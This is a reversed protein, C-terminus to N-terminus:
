GNIPDAKRKAVLVEVGGRTELVCEVMSGPPFEWEEGSTEYRDTPLVRYVNADIRLGLTPRYVVTGENLLPIHIKFTNNTSSDTEASM